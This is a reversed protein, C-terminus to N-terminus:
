LHNKIKNGFGTVWFKERSNHQWHDHSRETMILPKLTMKGSSLITVVSLRDVLPSAKTFDIWRVGSIVTSHEDGALQMMFGHLVEIVWHEGHDFRQWPSMTTVATTKCHNPPPSQPPFLDYWHHSSATTAGAMKNIRVNRQCKYRHTNKETVNRNGDPLWGDPWTVMALPFFVCVFM